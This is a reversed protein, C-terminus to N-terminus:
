ELLELFHTQFIWSKSSNTLLKPPTKLHVPWHRHWSSLGLENESEFLKEDKLRKAAAKNDSLGTSRYSASNTAESTKHICLQLSSELCFHRRIV